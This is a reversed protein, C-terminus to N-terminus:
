LLFLAGFGWWLDVVMISAIYIREWRRLAPGTPAPDPFMRTAAVRQLAIVVLGAVFVVLRRTEVAHWLALSLIAGALPSFIIPLTSQILVFRIRETRIHEELEQESAFPRDTVAEIAVHHTRPHRAGVSAGGLRSAGQMAPPRERGGM